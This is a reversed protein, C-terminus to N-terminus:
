VRSCSKPLRSLNHKTQTISNLRLRHWTGPWHRRSFLPPSCRFVATLSFPLAQLCKKLHRLESRPFSNTTDFHATTPPSWVGAVNTQSQVLYAVHNVYTNVYVTLISRGIMSHVLFQYDPVISAIEEERERGLGGCNELLTERDAKGVTKSSDDLRPELYQLCEELVTQYSHVRICWKVRQYM